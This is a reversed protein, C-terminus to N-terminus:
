YSLRVHDNLVSDNQWAPGHCDGCVLEIVGGDGFLARYGMGSPPGPGRWLIVPVEDADLRLEFWEWGPTSNEYGYTGDRKVMAHVAWEQPTGGEMTKVLMTGVPFRRVGEPPM